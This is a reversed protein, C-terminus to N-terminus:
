DHRSKRELFDKMNQTAQEIEKPPTKYSKKIFHHLLVFKNDRWYFFFIRHALPRLEWLNGGVHKVQPEGVRTGFVELARIYALIKQYQIRADKSTQAKDRYETLVQKVPQEGYRDEYFNVEFM